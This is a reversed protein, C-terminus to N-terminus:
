HPSRSGLESLWGSGYREKGIQSVGKAIAQETSRRICTGAFAKQVVRRSVQAVRAIAATDGIAIGRPVIVQRFRSWEVPALSNLHEAEDDLGERMREDLRNSEKGVHSPKGLMFVHRRSLLGRTGKGCQEGDHGVSKSEEHVRYGEIVEGYTQVRVQGDSGSEHTTIRYAKGSHAEHWRLGVWKASDREYPAVLRFRTPDAVAPLGLLRDPYCVLLFNFPRVQGERPKGRNLGEFPHLGGPTTV